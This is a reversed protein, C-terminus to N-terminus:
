IRAGWPRKKLGARREVGTGRAKMKNGVEGWEGGWVEGEPILRM